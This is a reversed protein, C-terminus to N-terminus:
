PRGHSAGKQELAAKLVNLRDTLNRVPLWGPSDRDLMMLVNDAEYATLKDILAGVAPEIRIVNAFRKRYM